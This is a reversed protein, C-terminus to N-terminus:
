MFPRILTLYEETLAIIAVIGLIGFKLYIIYLVAIRQVIWCFEDVMNM